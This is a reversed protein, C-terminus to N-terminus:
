ALHSERFAADFDGLPMTRGAKLDSLGRRIGGIVEGDEGIVANRREGLAHLADRLLDDESQYAGIHMQEKVLTEVDPPFQYSMSIEQTLEAYWFMWDAAM